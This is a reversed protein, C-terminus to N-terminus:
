GDVTRIRVADRVWTQLFGRAEDWSSLGRLILEVSERSDVRKRQWTNLLRHGTNASEHVENLDGDWVGFWVFISEGHREFPYGQFTLREGNALTVTHSLRNGARRLGVTPLCIDPRHVLSFLSIRDAEWRFHYARADVGQATQWALMEGESYRLITRARAPVTGTTVAAPAAGAEWHIALRRSPLRVRDGQFWAETAILTGALVGLSALAGWRAPAGSGAVARREPQSPAVPPIWNDVFRSAVILVVVAGLSIGHGLRDHLASTEEIGQHIAQWTLIVARVTNLFVAVLVGFGLFAVRWPAPWRAVEGLVYAIMLTGHLSRIGSCADEVGLQGQSLVLSNGVQHVAQGLLSLCEVTVAIIVKLLASTIAEEIGWPWPIAFFALVIAPAVHRVGKGGALHGCAILSLGFTITGWVWLPARWDPNAEMVVYVPGLLSTAGLLLTPWLWVKSADSSPRDEIRRALLVVLIVPVLWGHYYQPNLQWDLRLRWGLLVWALVPVAVILATTLRSPSSLSSM